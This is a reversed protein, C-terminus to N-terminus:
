DANTGFCNNNFLISGSTSIPETALKFQELDQEDGDEEEIGFNQQQCQMQVYNELMITTSTSQEKQQIQEDALMSNGFDNMEIEEDDEVEVDEL